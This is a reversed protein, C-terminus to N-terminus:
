TERTCTWATGGAGDSRLARGCPLLCSVWSEPHGLMPEEPYLTYRAVAPAQRKAMNEAQKQVQSAYPKTSIANRHDQAQLKNRNPMHLLQPKEQLVLM